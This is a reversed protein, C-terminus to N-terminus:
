QGRSAVNGPQLGATLGAVCSLPVFGLSSYAPGSTVCCRAAPGPRGSVGEQNLAPPHWSAVSAPTWLPGQGAALSRPLRDEDRSCVAGAEEQRPLAPAPLHNRTLQLCPRRPRCGGCQLRHLVCDAQPLAGRHAGVEPRLPLPWGQGPAWLVPVRTLRQGSAHRDARQGAFPKLDELCCCPTGPPGPFASWDLSKFFPESGPPLMRPTVSCCDLAEPTLLTVAGARWLWLFLFHPQAPTLSNLPAPM